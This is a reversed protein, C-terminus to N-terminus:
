GHRTERSQITRSGHPTLGQSGHPALRQSGDPEPRQSGHPALGPQGAKVTPQYSERVGQSNCDRGKRDQAILTYDIAESLDDETWVFKVYGGVAWVPRDVFRNSLLRIERTCNAKLQDRAVAGKHATATVVVHVHNSRANVAWLHWQRQNSHCRCAYEVANRELVHLLEISHNLREAHWSELLPQPSREGERRKRWGTLDGQLHVGYITWTIFYALPTDNNM